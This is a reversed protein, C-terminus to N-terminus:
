KGRWALLNQKTNSWIWKKNTRPSKWCIRCDKCSRHWSRSLRRQIKISNTTPMDWNKDKYQLKDWSLSLQNINKNCNNIYKVTNRRLSKKLKKLAKSWRQWNYKKKNKRKLSRKSKRNTPTCNPRYLHMSTSEWSMKFNLSNGSWRKANVLKTKWCKLSSTENQLSRIERMKCRQLRSWIQSQM